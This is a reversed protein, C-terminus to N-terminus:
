DRRISSYRVWCLHPVLTLKSVTLHEEKVVHLFYGNLFIRVQYQQQTLM